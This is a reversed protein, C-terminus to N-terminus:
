WNNKKDRVRSIVFLVILTSTFIFILLSLWDFSNILALMSLFWIPVLTFLVLLFLPLRVYFRLKTKIGIDDSSNDNLVYYENSCDIVKNNYTDYVFHFDKTTKISFEIDIKKASRYLSVTQEDYSTLFTSLWFCLIKSFSLPQSKKLIRITHIGDEVSKSYFESYNNFFKVDLEKNDLFVKYDKSCNELKILFM